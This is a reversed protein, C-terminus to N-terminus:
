EVRLMGSGHQHGATSIGSGSSTSPRLKANASMRSGAGGQWLWWSDEIAMERAVRLAGSTPPHVSRLRTQKLNLGTPPEM